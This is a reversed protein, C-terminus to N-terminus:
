RAPVEADRAPVSVIDVSGIGVDIDLEVNAVPEPSAHLEFHRNVGLGEDHTIRQRQGSQRSSHTVSGTGVDADITASLHDPLLVKLEGVALQIDVEHTGDRPRYAGFDIVLRGLGHRLETEGVGSGDVSVQAKGIGAAWSSRSGSTLVLAATLVTGVVMLARAPTTFASVVVGIGAIALAGALTPAIETDLAGTGHVIAIAGAYIVLAAICVTGVLSPGRRRHATRAGSQRAASMESRLTSPATAVTPAAPASPGQRGPWLVLAAGVCLLVVAVVSANWPGRGFERFLEGSLGVIVVLGLGGLAVSVISRWHSNSRDGRASGSFAAAIISPGSAAPLALWGILYILAGTGGFFTLVVFGIRVAVSSVGLWEALGGAVGAIMRDDDSRRLQQWTRPKPAESNAHHDGDPSPAEAGETDGQEDPPDADHPADQTVAGHQLRPRCGELPHHGQPTGWQKMRVSPQESTARVPGQSMIAAHTPAEVTQRM